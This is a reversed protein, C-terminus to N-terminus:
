AKNQFRAFRVDSTAVSGICMATAVTSTSATPMTPIARTPRPAGIAATSVLAIVRRGAATARLLFFSVIAM